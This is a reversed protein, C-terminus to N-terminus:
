GPGPRGVKIVTSGEAAGVVEALRAADASGPAATLVVASLDDGPIAIVNGVLTVSDGDPPTITASSEYAEVPRPARWLTDFLSSRTRMEDVLAALAPDAPYRLLSAKLQAVLVTEHDTADAASQQFADFPRCFTRWAINWEWRDGTLTWHELAWFARNVAVVNLAADSVIMPTDAFRELLRTAGPGVETPVQGDTAAYGALATLREYDARGARMARALAKVVGASPHSRGQELRRVYDASMGALEGLEERRLGRVRRAGVPLGVAAPDTGERLQRVAAGFELREVAGTHRSARGTSTFPPGTRGLSM